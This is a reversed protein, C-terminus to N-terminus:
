RSQRPADCQNTSLLSKLLTQATDYSSDGRPVKRLEDASETLMGAQAYLAGLVLHAEEHGRRFHALDDALKLPVIRLPTESPSPESAVVKSGGRLTATVQWLYTRGRRLPRRPRWVTKRLSPSRQVPHLGVDVIVVSYRIAAPLPQWSFEPRTESIAEGFPGLLAFGTNAAPTGSLPPARGRLRTADTPLQLKGHQIAESVASRVDDPLANLEDAVRTDRTQMHAAVPAPPAARQPAATPAASTTRAAPAASAGSAASTGVATPAGSGASAVPSQGVSVASSPKHGRLSGREWWFVAAGAVVVIAAVSVAQPLTVGRRRRRPKLERRNPESRQFGSLESKFIRLDELEARCADCSDLHTRCYDLRSSALRGNAYAELDEPTLHRTSGAVGGSQATSKPELVSDADSLQDLV